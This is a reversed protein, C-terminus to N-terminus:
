CGWSEKLSLLCFIKSQVKIDSMSSMCRPLVRQLFIFILKHGQDYVNLDPCGLVTFPLM